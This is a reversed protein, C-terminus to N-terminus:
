KKEEITFIVRNIGEPMVRDHKEKKLKLGGYEEAFDLLSQYKAEPITFHFYTSSGKPWGIAVGGAKRGGLSTIKEVFKPTVASVNTVYIVGRYLFGQTAPAEEKSAVAQAVEHKAPVEETPPATPAPAPEAAPMPATVVEPTPPAPETVVPAVVPPAEPAPEIEEIEPEPAVIKKAVPKPPTVPKKTEVKKELKETKEVPEIKATPKKAKEAGEDPFSVTQEEPTGAAELDPNALDGKKVEALIVEKKGNWSIDMIRHWPIVLSLAVVGITVIMVELGMKIAPSWDEFRLKRMLVIFYSSPTKIEEFVRDSVQIDALQDAYGLGETIRHIETQAERSSEIFDQMAAKREPDLKETVYDYLFEKGMFPSLHRQGNKSYTRSEDSM